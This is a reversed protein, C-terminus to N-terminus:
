SRKKYGVEKVGYVIIDGESIEGDVVAYSFEFDDEDLCVSINEKLEEREDQNPNGTTILQHVITTGLVRQVLAYFIMVGGVFNCVRIPMDADV